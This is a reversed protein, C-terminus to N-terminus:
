LMNSTFRRFYVGHSCCALRGRKSLHLLIDFNKIKNKLKSDFNNFYINNLNKKIKLQITNILIVMGM